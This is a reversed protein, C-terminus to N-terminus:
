DYSAGATDWIIGSGSLQESRGLDVKLWQPVIDEPKILPQTYTPTAAWFTMPNGDVASAAKGGAEASACVTKRAALDPPLKPKSAAAPAPEASPLHARLAAHLRDTIKLTGQLNPHVWDYTDADPRCAWDSELDVLLLKCRRAERGQVIERLAENLPRSGAPHPILCLLVIVNPNATRLNDIIVGIDDATDNPSKKQSIDNTGLHIIAIDPREREIAARAAAAVRAATAGYYGEHASSYDGRYDTPGPTQSGVWQLQSYGERALQLALHYRWNYHRGATISDGLCMIKLNGASAALLTLWLACLAAAARGSLPLPICQMVDIILHWLPASPTWSINRIECSFNRWGAFFVKHSIGFIEHFGDAPGAFSTTSCCFVHSQLKCRTKITPNAIGNLATACAGPEPNAQVTLSKPAFPSPSLSSVRATCFAISVEAARPRFNTNGVPVKKIPV